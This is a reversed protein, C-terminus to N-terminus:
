KILACPTPSPAAYTLSADLQRRLEAVQTQALALQAQQDAKAAGCTALHEALDNDSRRLAAELAAVKQDAAAAAATCSSLHLAHASTSFSLSREADVLRADVAAQTM